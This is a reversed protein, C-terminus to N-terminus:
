AEAHDPYLTMALEIEADPIDGWEQWPHSECLLAAAGTTLNPFRPRLFAALVPAPGDGEKGDLHWEEWDVTGDPHYWVRAPGDVRHLKGGVLWAKHDVTGDSRYRVIAPGDTPRTKDGVRWEESGISGDPHHWAVVPEVSPMPAAITVPVVKRRAQRGHVPCMREAVSGPRHGQRPATCFIMM